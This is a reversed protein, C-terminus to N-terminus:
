IAPGSEPPGSELYTTFHLKILEKPVIKSKTEWSSIADAIKRWPGNDRNSMSVLGWPNIPSYIPWIEELFDLTQRDDPDIAAAAAFPVSSKAPGSYDQLKTDIVDGGYYKLQHYVRDVVPGYRWAQFDDEFLPANFKALHHGQAFYLLKQIKLHTLNAPNSANKDILWNVIAVVPYPAPM